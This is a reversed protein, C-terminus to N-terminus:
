WPCTEGLVFVKDQFTRCHDLNPAVRMSASCWVFSCGFSAKFIATAKAHPREGVSDDIPIMNINDIEDQLRKSIGTGWDTVKDFDARMPGEMVFRTVRDHQEPPASQWQQLIVKKM